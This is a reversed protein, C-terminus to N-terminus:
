RKNASSQKLDVKELNYSNKPNNSTSPSDDISKETNKDNTKAKYLAYSLATMMAGIAIMESASLSPDYGMRRNVKEVNDHLFEVKKVHEYVEKIKDGLRDGNRTYFDNFYNVAYDEFGVIMLGMAAESYRTTNGTGGKASSALGGKAFKTFITTNRDNVARPCGFTSLIGVLDDGFIRRTNAITNLYYSPKYEESGTNGGGTIRVIVHEDDQAIMTWHSNTIAIEGTSGYEQIIRKIRESKKFVANISIGTATTIEFNLPKQLNLADEVKNVFNRLPSKSDYRTPSQTKDFEYEVKYGGSFHLKNAYIYEGDKTMLGAMEASGDEGQTLFIREIQIGEIWKVDQDQAYKKLKEHDDFLNYTDGPYRWANQIDGSKFFFEIEEPTLKEFEIGSKKFSENEKEVEDSDKKTFTVHIASSKSNNPNNRTLKLNSEKEIIDKIDQSIRAEIRNLDHETIEGKSEKLNQKQWNIENGLYIRLQKPNITPEIDIKRYDSRLVDDLKDGFLLRAFLTPLLAHGTLNENANLSNSHRAHSQKASHSVNSKSYDRTIYTRDNLKKRISPILTALTIQDEAAPGGVCVLSEKKEIESSQRFDRYTKPFDRIDSIKVKISGQESISDSPPTLITRKFFEYSEPDKSLVKEFIEKTKADSTFLSKLNRGEHFASLHHYNFEGVSVLDESGTLSIRNPISSKSGRSSLLNKLVNSTFNKRM